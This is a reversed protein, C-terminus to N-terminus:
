VLQEWLAVPKSSSKTITPKCNNLKHHNHHQQQQQHQHHQLQHQNVYNSFNFYQAFQSRNLYFDVERDCLLDDEEHSELELSKLSSFVDKVSYQKVQKTQQQQQQKQPKTNTLHEYKNLNEYIPEEENSTSKTNQKLPKVQAILCTKVKPFPSWEVLSASSSNAASSSSSSSSSFLPSSSMYSSLNSTADSATSDIDRGNCGGLTSIGSDVNTLSSKELKRALMSEYNYEDASDHEQQQQQLLLAQKQNFKLLELEQMRKLSEIQSRKAASSASSSSHNLQTGMKPTTTTTSKFSGKTSIKKNLLPFKRFFSM